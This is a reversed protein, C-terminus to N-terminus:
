RGKKKSDSHNDKSKSKSSSSSSSSGSYGRRDGDRTEYVNKSLSIGRKQYWEKSHYGEPVDGRTGDRVKVLRIDNDSSKKNSSSSSRRDRDNDYRDHDHDHDYRNDRYYRPGGYYSSGYYPRSYGSSYYGGGGGSYVPRSSYNSYGPGDYYGGGGGDYGGYEGPIGECAPLAALACVAFLPRLLRPLNMAPQVDHTESYERSEPGPHLDTLQECRVLIVIGPM